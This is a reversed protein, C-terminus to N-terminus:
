LKGFDSDNEKEGPLYFVRAFSRVAEPKHAASHQSQEGDCTQDTGVVQTGRDDNESDTDNQNESGTWAVHLEDRKATGADTKDCDKESCFAVTQFTESDPTIRFFIFFSELGNLSKIRDSATSKKAPSKSVAYM